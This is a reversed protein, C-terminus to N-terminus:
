AGLERHADDLAALLDRGRHFGRRAILTLAERAERLTDADARSLLAQLDVRDQPRARDDRALVKMAILHPVRAIPIELGAVIEVVDAGLAIESEIGSSAFLLDVVPGETDAGMEVVRVTALREVLGHEVAAVVRWGRQQVQHVLAEADADDAVTVVLNADRTLRPEARVSVALGGVLAFRRGLHGLDAAIRRLASEPGTLLAAPAPAAAM